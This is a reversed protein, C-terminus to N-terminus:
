VEDEPRTNEELLIFRDKKVTYTKGNVIIEIDYTMKLSCDIDNTDAPVFTVTYWEDDKTIGNGLSKRLRAIRKECRTTLYMKDVTGTFTKFKFKVEHDNGRFFKIKM